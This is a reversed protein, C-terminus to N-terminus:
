TREDAHSEAQDVIRLSVNESLDIELEDESEFSVELHGLDSIDFRSGGVYYSGSLDDRRNGSYTREPARDHWHELTGDAELVTLPLDGKEYAISVHIRNGLRDNLWLLAADLDSM